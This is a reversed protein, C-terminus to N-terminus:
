QNLKNRKKQGIHKRKIQIMRVKKRIRQLYIGLYIIVVEVKKITKAFIFNEEKKAKGSKFLEEM